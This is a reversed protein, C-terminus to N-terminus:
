FHFNLHSQQVRWDRATSSSTPGSLSTTTRGTSRGIWTTCASTSVGRTLLIWGRASPWWTRTPGPGSGTQQGTNNKNLLAGRFGCWLTLWVRSGRRWERVWSPVVWERAWVAIKGRLVRRFLFKSISVYDSVFLPIKRCKCWIRLSFNKIINWNGFEKKPSYQATLNSNSTQQKHLRPLLTHNYTYMSQNM